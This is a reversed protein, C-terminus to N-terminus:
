LWGGGGDESHYVGSVGSLLQRGSNSNSHRKYLFAHMGGRDRQRPVMKGAVGAMATSCNISGSPDDVRTLVTIQKERPFALKEESYVLYNPNLNKFHDAALPLSPEFEGKVRDFKPSLTAV